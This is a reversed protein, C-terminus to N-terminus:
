EVKEFEALAQDIRFKITREPDVPYRCEIIEKLAKVLGDVKDARKLATRIAQHYAKQADSTM